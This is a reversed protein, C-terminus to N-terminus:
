RSRGGMSSCGCSAAFMLDGEEDTEMDRPTLSILPLGLDRIKALIGHLAAQDAIAGALRTNGQVDHTLSLDGLWESWHEDLHGGVKIEYHGATSAAGSESRQPNEDGYGKDSTSASTRDAMNHSGQFALTGDLFDLLGSFWDFQAPM